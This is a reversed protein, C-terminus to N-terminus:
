RSSGYACAIMNEIVRDCVRISIMVMENVDELDGRKRVVEQVVCDYKDLQISGPIWSQQASYAYRSPFKSEM